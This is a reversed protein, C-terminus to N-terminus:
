KTGALGADRMRIYNALIRHRAGCEILHDANIGLVNEAQQQTLPGDRLALPRECDAMATPSPATIRPKPPPTTVPKPTTACGALAVLMALTAFRRMMHHASVPCSNM